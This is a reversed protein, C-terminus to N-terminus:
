GSCIRLCFELHEDDPCRPVAEASGSAMPEGADLLEVEFRVLEDFVRVGLPSPCMFSPLPAPLEWFGGEGAPGLDVMGETLLILRGDSVRRATRRVRVAGPQHGQVRYTLWVHFGGQAGPVLPQDGALALFGAGEDVTGLSIEVDGPPLPSPPEAGCGAALLVSLVAQGRM